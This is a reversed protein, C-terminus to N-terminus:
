SKSIKESKKLRKSETITKGFLTLRIAGDAPCKGICEGCMMCEASFVGGDTKQISIRKSQMPCQRSCSGCYLCKSSNKELKLPSIRNLWGFFLGCPCFSCWFRVIFPATVVLLFVLIWGPDFGIWFHLVFYFVFFFYKFIRIARNFKETRKMQRVKLRRFLATLLDLTYGVPCAYACWARGTLLIMLGIVSLLTILWWPLPHCNRVILIILGAILLLNVTRIYWRVRQFQRPDM